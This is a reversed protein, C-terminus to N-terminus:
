GLLISARACFRVTPAGPDALDVWGANRHAFYCM